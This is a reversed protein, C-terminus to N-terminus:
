ATTLGSREVRGILLRAIANVVVTIAFLVLGIEV